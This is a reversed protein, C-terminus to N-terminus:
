RQKQRCAALYFTILSEVSKEHAGSLTAAVCDLLARKTATLVPRDAVYNRSMGAVFKGLRL